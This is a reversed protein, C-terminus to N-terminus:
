EAMSRLSLRLLGADEPTFRLPSAAMAAYDLEDWRAKLLGQSSHHSVGELVHAIEHALVHGLLTSTLSGEHISRIRDYFIHIRPGARGHLMAYALARPSRDAPADSDLRVEIAAVPACGRAHFSRHPAGNKFVVRVGVGEFIRTVTMEARSLVSAPVIVANELYVKVAPEAGRSCDGAHAGPGAFVVLGLLLLIRM